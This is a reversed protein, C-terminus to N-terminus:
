IAEAAPKNAEKPPTAPPPQGLQQLIEPPLMIGMRKVDAMIVEPNQAIQVAVDPYKQAVALLIDQPKMGSKFAAIAEFIAAQRRNSYQERAEVGRKSFQQAGARAQELLAMRENLAGVMAMGAGFQAKVSKWTRYLLWLVGIFCAILVLGVGIILGVQWNEM